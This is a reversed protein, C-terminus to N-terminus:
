FAATETSLLHAEVLMKRHLCFLVLAAAEKQNAESGDTAAEAERAALVDWGAARIKM